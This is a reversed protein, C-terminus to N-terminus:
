TKNGNAERRKRAKLLREYKIMFGFSPVDKQFFGKFFHKNEDSQSKV